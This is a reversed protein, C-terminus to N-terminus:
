VESRRAQLEAAESESLARTLIHIEGESIADDYGAPRRRLLRAELLLGGLTFLVATLMMAEYTVIGVPLASVIPMGGTNLPYLRATVAALSYGAGAGLVAGFLTFWPLRSKPSLIEGIDHLPEASLVQIDKPDIRRSLLHAVVSRAEEPTRCRIRSPSPNM